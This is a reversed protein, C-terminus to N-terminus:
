PRDDPHRQSQTTRSVSRRSLSALSPLQRAAPSRWNFRITLLRAVLFLVIVTWGAAWQDWGLVLVLVEYIALALVVLIVYFQGPRFAQPVDGVLLDRLIGGGVGNVTGVLLAGVAPVAVSLAMATGLFAFMPTGIADIIAVVQELWGIRARELPGGFLLVVATALAIILLYDTRELIVPQRNLFVADRLLGGGTSSVLAIVFVGTADFDARRAVIAGSLAWLFLATVELGPPAVFADSM